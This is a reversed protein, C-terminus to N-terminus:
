TSSTANTRRRRRLFGLGGAIGSILLPLAAPVPVPATTAFLRIDSNTSSVDTFNSDQLSSFVTPSGVTNNQGTFEVTGFTNYLGSGFVLAYTGTTLPTSFTITTSFDGATTPALFVSSGKNNNKDTLWSALATPGSGTVNPLTGSTVPVIEAFATGTSFADVNGGVQLSTVPNSISFTAGLYTSDADIGDGVAFYSGDSSTGATATQLVYDAFAPSGAGLAVAAVATLASARLKNTLMKAYEQKIKNTSIIPAVV